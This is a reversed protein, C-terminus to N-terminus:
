EYARQCSNALGNRSPLTMYLRIKNELFSHRTINRSECSNTAQRACPCIFKMLPYVTKKISTHHQILVDHFIKWHKLSYKQRMISWTLTQYATRSSYMKELNETKSITKMSFSCNKSSTDMQKKEKLIGYNNKSFAYYAEKVEDDGHMVSNSAFFPMNVNDPHQTSMCRAIHIKSM